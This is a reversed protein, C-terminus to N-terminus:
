IVELPSGVQLNESSGNCGAGMEERSIWASGQAVIQTQTM